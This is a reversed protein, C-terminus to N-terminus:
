ARVVELCKVAFGSGYGDLMVLWEKSCIQWPESATTFVKGKNTEAELCNIIRVKTGVPTNKNCKM